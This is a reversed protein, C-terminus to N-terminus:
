SPSRDGHLELKLRQLARGWLMRAADASRGLRRGVEEFPLGEHYRLMMVQRYDAPLRDIAQQLQQLQEDAMLQVSPTPAVGALQSASVPSPYTGNLSIERSLQRKRTGRYRRGLKAAKHLLLCRLWARLQAVSAGDFRQFIQQAELFTEQVLDSAGGKVQLGPGLAQRAVELLYRRCQDLALGLAERSGARAASLHANLVSSGTTAM